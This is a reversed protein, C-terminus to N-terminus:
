EGTYCAISREDPSFAPEFHRPLRVKVTTGENLRTNVSISGGHREIISFSISLGLGTGEGVPKTTFFPDFIRNLHQVAIGCGTDTVEVFINDDDARTVIEVEGKAAGVAQAANILLNMWVQNLQSSFAEIHPLDCYKRSLKIKGALFYQSLLRVTADIGEHIDTAKYEAEDLRSFTRLNQVINHIRESGERCDQIISSIEDLTKPYGIEKKILASAASSKTGNEDYSRVLRVLDQVHQDLIEMNAHVFGVPNNLEHAVGASLKGLSAMRENQIVEAQLRELQDKRRVLEINRTELDLKYRRANLILSRRELARDVTLELVEPDCPKILYDFAGLRVADLARQPREVGSVVIVATNPFDVLIKRLLEIGSLGPMIIDTIVIAFDSTKLEALAEDYSGAEFCEYKPSLHRSFITRVLRSDDVLLVRQKECDDPVTDADLLRMFVPQSTATSM